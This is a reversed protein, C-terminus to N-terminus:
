SFQKENLQFKRLGLYLMKTQSFQNSLFEPWYM